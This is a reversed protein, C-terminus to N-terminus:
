CGQLKKPVRRTGITLMSSNRNNTATTRTRLLMMNNRHHQQPPPGHHANPGHNPTFPDAAARLPTVPFHPPSQPPTLPMPIQPTKPSTSM